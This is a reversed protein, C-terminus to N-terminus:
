QLYHNIGAILKYCIDMTPTSIGLAASQRVAYGLTEEVELRKGQEVDQLTSIKHLPAQSALQDGMQQLHTVLDDFALQSLTKTPFFTIDELVIARAAAIQTMEHLIAAVITATQAEQLFKYTELRTLVAPAMWSVFALYKAWEFSQISPTVQALIGAQAFTEGLTQVRSSTGEPLEGLYLGQNVTFRVTGTPLVAASLAAMAGLVKEWGFTQALQENKLIGNQISGVSEVDLHKVSHLASAMDYTKVTVILVDADRIQSPDTVVRVPITFDVLGTITAGHEQLYAARQGRAILTVDEGARALHAGLVTGLAGAGLIIIKM